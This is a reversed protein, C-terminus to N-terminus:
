FPQGYRDRILCGDEDVYTDRTIDFTLKRQAAAKINVPSSPPLDADFDVLLRNELKQNGELM